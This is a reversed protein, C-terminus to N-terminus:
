QEGVPIRAPVPAPDPGTLVANAKKSFEVWAGGIDRLIVQIYERSPRHEDPFNSLACSGANFRMADDILGEMLARFPEQIAPMLASRGKEIPVDATGFRIASLAGLAAAFVMEFTELLALQTLQGRQQGALRHTIRQEYHALAPKRQAEVWATFRDVGSRAAPPISFEPVDARPLLAAAVRAAADLAGEMYGAERAATESGAFHLMGRWQPQRLIAPAAVPHDRSMWDGRDGMTDAHRM